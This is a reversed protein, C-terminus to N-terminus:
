YFFCLTGSAWATPGAFAAAVVWHPPVTPRNHVGRLIDGGM